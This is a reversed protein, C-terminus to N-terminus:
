TEDVGQEEESTDHELWDADEPYEGEEDDEEDEDESENPLNAHPKRAFKFNTRQASLRDTIEELWSLVVHDSRSHKM